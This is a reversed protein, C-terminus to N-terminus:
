RWWGIVRLVRLTNWKSAEGKNEMSFFVKGTHPKDPYVVGDKIKTYLYNIGSLMREDKRKGFLFFYDLASLVDYFWYNPFSFRLWDAKIPKGDQLYLNQSLLFDQGKTVSLEIEKNSSATYRQYQLFAELVLLTTEFTFNSAEESEFPLWNGEVSQQSILFSVIKDLLISETQFYSCISLVLATVGLDSRKQNKTFRIERELYCGSAILSKCGKQAAHNGEQLGLLKLLYLAYTTSVWKGNYLSHNWLGNEDQMNLVQAGWGYKEIRGREKVIEKEELHLLDRMVQWRIAPDSDLFWKRIEDSIVM